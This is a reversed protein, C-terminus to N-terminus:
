LVATASVPAISDANFTFQYLHPSLDKKEIALVGVSTKGPAVDEQEIHSQLLDVPTSSTKGFHALSAPGLQVNTQPLAPASNGEVTLVSVTPPIVRYPVTDLNTVQYRVYIADDGQVVDELRVSVRNKPTKIGVANVHQANLLTQSLAQEAAKAMDEEKEKEQSSSDTATTVAPQQVASIFVDMKSVDGAPQLEYISRGHETWVFLNTSVGSKTPRVFVRTGHREIDFAESGAAAMTIPEAVEIVTLHNLATQVKTVPQQQAIALSSSVILITLCVKKV